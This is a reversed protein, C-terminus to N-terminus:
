GMRILFALVAAGLSGLQRKIRGRYHKLVLNIGLGSNYRRSTTAGEYLSHRSKRMKIMGNCARSGLMWAVKQWHHIDLFKIRSQTFNFLLGCALLMLLMIRPVIRSNEFFLLTRCM